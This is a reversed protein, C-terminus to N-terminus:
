EETLYKSEPLTVTCYHIPVFAEIIANDYSGDKDVMSSLDIWGILHTDSVNDFMVQKKVITSRLKFAQNMTVHGALRIIERLKDIFETAQDRNKFCFTMEHNVWKNLEPTNDDLENEHADPVDCEYVIIFGQKNYVNNCAVTEIVDKISYGLANLDEMRERLERGVERYSVEQQVLTSRMTKM